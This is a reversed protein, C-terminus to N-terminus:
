RNEIKVVSKAEIAITMSPLFICYNDGHEEGDMCDCFLSLILNNEFFVELDFSHEHIKLGVIKLGRIHKLGNLMEGGLTNDSKSSCVVQGDTSWLRWACNQVFLSYEGKYNAEDFSLNPNKSAKVRKVKKGISLNVMSGSGSGAIVGWCQKGILSKVLREFDTM